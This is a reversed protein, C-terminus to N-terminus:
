YSMSLDNFTFLSVQAIFVFEDGFFAIKLKRSTFRHRTEFDRAGISNRAYM